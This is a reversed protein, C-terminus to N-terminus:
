VYWERVSKVNINNLANKVHRDYFSSPAPTVTAKSGPPITTTTTRHQLHAVNGARAARPASTITATPRQLNQGTLHTSPHTSSYELSTNPMNGTGTVQTSPRSLTFENETM